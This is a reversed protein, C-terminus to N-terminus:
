EKKQEVHKGAKKKERRVVNRVENKGCVCESNLEERKKNRRNQVNQNREWDKRGNSLEINKM